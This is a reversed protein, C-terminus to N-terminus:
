PKVEKIKRGCNLCEERDHGIYVLTGYCVPCTGSMSFETKYRMNDYKQNDRIATDPYYSKIFKHQPLPLGRKKAEMVLADLKTHKHGKKTTCYRICNLLYDDGMQSILVYGAQSRSKWRAKTNHQITKM